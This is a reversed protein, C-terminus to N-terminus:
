HSSMTLFHLQSMPVIVLFKVQDVHLSLLLDEVTELQGLQLLNIEMVPPIEGAKM